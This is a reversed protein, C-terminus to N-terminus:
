RNHEGEGLGTEVEASRCGEPIADHVVSRVCFAGWDRELVGADEALYLRRM